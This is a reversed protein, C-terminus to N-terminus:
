KISEIVIYTSLSDTEEICCIPLNTVTNIVYNTFGSTNDTKKLSVVCSNNDELKAVLNTNLKPLDILEVLLDQVTNSNKFIDLVEQNEIECEKWEGYEEVYFKNWDYKYDRQTFGDEINNGSCKTIYAEQKELDIEVSYNNYNYFGEGNYLKSEQNFKIYTCSYLANLLRTYDGSGWNYNETGTTVEEQTSDSTNYAIDVKDNMCGSLLVLSLGLPVLISKRM